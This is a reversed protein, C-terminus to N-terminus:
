CGALVVCETQDSSLFWEYELTGQCREQVVSLIAAALVKFADLKGTHIKLRVIIRLKSM